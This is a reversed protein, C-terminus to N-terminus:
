ESPKNMLQLIQTKQPTLFANKSNLNNNKEAVLLLGPDETTRELLSKTSKSSSVNGDREVGGLFVLAKADVELFRPLKRKKQPTLFSKKFKM